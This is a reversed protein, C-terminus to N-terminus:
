KTGRYNTGGMATTLDIQALNYSFLADIYNARARELRTQADVTELSSAVGAQYRRRAQALENEALALGEQAAKVQGDASQLAELALRVDLEVQRLLEKTRLQEARLASAAEARRADRRGGDFVPVRLSLGYARTPIADGPGSGITGYDGFAVVSPMREMRAASLSLRASEERRRQARLEPREKAAAVAAELTVPGTPVYALKDALAISASQPMGILRKLELLAREFQNRNVLLRQRENALQVRARTVEIGTGTGATKQSVALELLAEALAVNAQAMEVAAAARVGALYSRAVQDTVQSRV